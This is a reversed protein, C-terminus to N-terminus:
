EGLLEEWTCGLAERMLRLTTLTPQAKGTAYNGVTSRAIGARRCLDIQSMGRSSLLALLRTGFDM